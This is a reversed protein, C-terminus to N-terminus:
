LRDIKSNDEYFSPIEIAISLVYQGNSRIYSLPNWNGNNSALFNM